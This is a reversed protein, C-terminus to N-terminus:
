EGATELGVRRYLDYRGITEVLEYNELQEPAYVEALKSFWGDIVYDPDVYTRFDYYASTSAGGFADHSVTYNEYRQPPIHYNHDTMVGLEDEWTEILATEPINADIYAAMEYGDGYSQDLPDILIRSLPLLAIGFLAVVVIITILTAPTAEQGKAFARLGAWDFRYGDTLSYILRAVPLAALALGPFAYRDWGLSVTFTALNILAFLTIIGWAQGERTKRLGLIATFLLAAGMLGGYARPGLISVLNDKITAFKLQLFSQASNERLAQMDAAVDRLHADHLFLIYYTWGGFLLGALAGPVVFVAV